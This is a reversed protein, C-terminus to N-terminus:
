LGQIVAKIKENLASQTYGNRLRDHSIKISIKKKEYLLKAQNLNEIFNFINFRCFIVSNKIYNFDPNNLMPLETTFVLRGSYVSEFVKFPFIDPNSMHPNLLVDVSGYSDRLLNESVAGRYELYNPNENSYHIFKKQLSGKGTIIFFFPLKKLCAMNILELLFLGGKDVELGGFYGVKIVSSKFPKYNEFVFQGWEPLIGPLVDTKIKNILLYKQLKENVAFAYDYKSKSRLWYFFDIFPKPNLKRNRSFIGDELELITKANSHKKFYICGKSEYAYANYCWVLSPNGYKQKIEKFLVDSLLINKFKHFFSNNILKPTCLTVNIKDISKIEFKIKKNIEPSSNILIINSDIEYLIKIIFRIKTSLALFKSEEPLNGNYPAIVIIM